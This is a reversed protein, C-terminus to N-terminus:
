GGNVTYEFYCPGKRYNQELALTDKKSLSARYQKAKKDLVLGEDARILRGKTKEILVKYLPKAPFNDAGGWAVPVKDQVLPMLAVLDPSKVLELGSVSGTGNHSGHHGVKYFITSALLEETNKGGKTKLSKMVDPKHWSLWNGSQADAPLLMVKGSDEFELAMALSTNNMLRTLALAVSGGSDISDTEIQRWSLDDSNYEEFFADLGDRNIYKESFPSKKDVLAVGSDAIDDTDLPAASAAAALSLSYMEDEDMEIKLFRLDADRPPGLIFFKIGEAGVLDDIVEGPRCYHIKRKGKKKVYNMADENTRRGSALGMAHMGEEFDILGKTQQLQMAAMGLRESVNKVQKDGALGNVKQMALATAEKLEKLKKGYKDKLTIAVPDTADEVWSMWVQKVEIEDFL